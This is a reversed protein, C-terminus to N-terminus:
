DEDDWMSTDPIRILMSPTGVNSGFVFGEERRDLLVSLVTESPGTPIEEMRWSIMDVDINCVLLSFVMCTFIDSMWPNIEEDDGMGTSCSGVERVDGLLSLIEWCCAIPWTVLFESRATEEGDGGGRSDSSL